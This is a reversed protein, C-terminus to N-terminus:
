TGVRPELIVVRTEEAAGMTGTLSLKPQAPLSGDTLGMEKAFRDIPDYDGTGAVGGSRYRVPIVIAPAIANVVKTAAVAGLADVGGVPVALVDM